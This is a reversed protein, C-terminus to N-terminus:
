SIHTTLRKNDMSQTIQNVAHFNYNGYLLTSDKIDSLDKVGKKYWNASNNDDINSDMRYSDYMILDAYPVYVLVFDTRSQHSGSSVGCLM